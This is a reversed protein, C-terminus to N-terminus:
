ESLDSLDSLDHDVDSIDSLCILCITIWILYISCISWISWSRIGIYRVSLDHDLDPLNFLYVLYIMIEILHIPCISWICHYILYKPCISWISWSRSWIYIPCISWTSRSTSWISRRSLDHYLDSLDAQFVHYITMYILHISAHIMLIM